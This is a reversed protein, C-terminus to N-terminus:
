TMKKLSEAKDMIHGEHVIHADSPMLQVLLELERAGTISKM